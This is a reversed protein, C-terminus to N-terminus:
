NIKENEQLIATKPNTKNFEGILEYTFPLQVKLRSLIDASINSRSFPVVKVYEQIEGEERGYKYEYPFNGNENVKVEPNNTNPVSIYFESNKIDGTDNLLSHEKLYEFLEKATNVAPDILTIEEAMFNRYRYNGDAEKYNYLEELVEHIESILYPYHTCGLIISKLPVDNEANKIQEMLSVLHFRVYNEADNIQLINCDGPSGADCLMKNQDFDFNYIDLLTKEIKINGELGPGKYNERPSNLTKDYYDTDEDVAEAIGIGGQQFVNIKGTYGMKDKLSHITNVYGKSDVTGVTAMVAITADEDKELIELAGRVGADIVGIVKIDLNAEKLFEEITEKGYATATNCAIVLAKVQSKDNKYNSAGGVPYYNKGLLFQVDKIVHERLLGQKNETSYNGYPMNAQDALYIFKENEFDIIGDKGPALTSNKFGDFNIIADLVTLGGIGSDFVGVPLTKDGVPYERTALYFFGSSDKLINEVISENKIVEQGICISSISLTLLLFLIRM